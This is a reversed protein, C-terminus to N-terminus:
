SLLSEMSEEIRVLERSVLEFEVRLEAREEADQDDGTSHLLCDTVLVCNCPLSARSM